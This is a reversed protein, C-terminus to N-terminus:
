QLTHGAHSYDEAVSTALCHLNIEAFVIAGPEPLTKPFAEELRAKSVYIPFHEIFRGALRVTVLLRAMTLGAIDTFDTEIAELRGGCAYLGPREAGPPTETLTDDFATMFSDTAAKMDDPATFVKEAVASLVGRYTTNLSYVDHALAWLPDFAVISRVPFGNEDQLETRLFAAAQDHTSYAEELRFQVPLGNPLFPFFFSQGARQPDAARICGLAPTTGAFKATDAIGVYAAMEIGDANPNACDAAIGPAMPVLHKEVFPLFSAENDAGLSATLDEFFATSQLSRVLAESIPNTLEALTTPAAPAKMKLWSWADFAQAAPKEEPLLRSEALNMLQSATSVGTREILCRAVHWAAYLPQRGASEPYPEFLLHLILLVWDGPRGEAKVHDTIARRRVESDARYFDAGMLQLAGYLYFIEPDGSARLLASVLGLCQNMSPDVGDGLALCKACRLIAPEFGRAASAFLWHNGETKDHPSAAELNVLHDGFFCMTRPDDTHLALRTFLNNFVLGPFLTLRDMVVPAAIWQAAPDYGAALLQGLSYLFEPLHKAHESPIALAQRLSLYISAPTNCRVLEVLRCMAAGLTRPRRTAAHILRGEATPHAILERRMRAIPRGLERMVDRTLPLKRGAREVRAKPTNQFFASACLIGEVSLFDGAKAEPCVGEPLVIAVNALARKSWEACILRCPRHFVPELPTVSKVHLTASVAPIGKAAQKMTLYPDNTLVHAKTAWLTLCATLPTDARLEGAAHAWHTAYATLIVPKPGECELELWAQTLTEAVECRRVVVTTEQETEVYPFVPGALTENEGWSDISNRLAAAQVKKEPHRRHSATARLVAAPRVDFSGLPRDASPSFPAADSPGYHAVADAPGTYAVFHVPRDAEELDSEEFGFWDHFSPFPRTAAETVAALPLGSAAYRNGPAGADFMDDADNDAAKAWAKLRLYCLEAPATIGSGLGKISKETPRDFWRKTEPLVTDALRQAVLQELIIVSLAWAPHRQYHPADPALCGRVLRFRELIGRVKAFEPQNVYKTHYEDYLRCLQNTLYQALRQDGPMQRMWAASAIVDTAFSSSHRLSADIWVCKEKRDWQAPFRLANGGASRKVRLPLADFHPAVRLRRKAFLADTIEDGLRRALLDRVEATLVDTRSRMERTLGYGPVAALLTTM